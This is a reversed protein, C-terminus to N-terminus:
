KLYFTFLARSHTYTRILSVHSRRHDSSVPVAEARGNLAIEQAKRKYPIIPPPLFAMFAKRDDTSYQSIWTCICVPAYLVDSIYVANSCYKQVTLCLTLHLKCIREEREYASIEETVCLCVNRNLYVQANM